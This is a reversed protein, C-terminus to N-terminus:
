IQSQGPQPQTGPQTQPVERAINQAPTQVQGQAPTQVQGPVQTQVQGQGPVQTQVPEQVQTEIPMEEQSQITPQKTGSSIISTPLNEVTMYATTVYNALEEAIEQESWRKKPDEGTESQVKKIYANILSSPIEIRTRVKWTDDYLQAGELVIQGNNVVQETITRSKKFDGYETINKM